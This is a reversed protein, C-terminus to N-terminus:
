RSKVFRYTDYEPEPQDLSLLEYDAFLKEAKARDYPESFPNALKGVRPDTRAGFTTVNLRRGAEREERRLYTDNYLMVEFIGGPRLFGTLHRVIAQAHPTHHLVGMSIILDFPVDFSLNAADPVTVLATEVRDDFGRLAGLRRIAALNGGNIDAFTVRADPRRALVDFGYFGIGSGYDLVRPADIGQLSEQARAFGVKRERKQQAAETEADVIALLEEDALAALMTSDLPNGGQARPVNKWYNRATDFSYPAAEGPPLLKAGIRRPPALASRRLRGIIRRLTREL